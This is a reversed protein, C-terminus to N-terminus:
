GPSRRMRMASTPLEIRRPEVVLSLAPRWIGNAPASTPVASTPALRSCSKVPIAMKVARQFHGNWHFNFVSGRPVPLGGNRPGTGIPSTLGPTHRSTASSTRGGRNTEPLEPAYLHLSAHQQDAGLLQRKGNFGSRTMNRYQQRLETPLTIGQYPM